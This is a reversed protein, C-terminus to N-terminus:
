DMCGVTIVDGNKHIIAYYVGGVYDPHTWNQILWCDNEFDYFVEIRKDQMDKDLKESCLDFYKQIASDPDVVPGVNESAPFTDIYWQYKALQFTGVMQEQTETPQEKNRTTTEGPTKLLFLLCLLIGILVIAIITLIIHKLKM